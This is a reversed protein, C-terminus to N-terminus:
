SPSPGGADAAYTGIRAAQRPLDRIRIQAHTLSRERPGESDLHQQRRPFGLTRQDAAADPLILM